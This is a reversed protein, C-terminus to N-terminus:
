SPNNGKHSYDKESEFENRPLFVILGIIGFFLDLLSHWWVFESVFIIPQLYILFFALSACIGWVRASSKKKWVIWWAIGFVISLVAYSVATLQSQLLLSSTQSHASRLNLWLFVPLYLFSELAFLWSMMMRNLHMDQHSKKWAAQETTVIKDQL